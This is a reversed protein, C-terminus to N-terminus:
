LLDRMKEIEKEINAKIIRRAHATDPAATGAIQRIHGWSPWVHAIFIDKFEPYRHIPYGRCVWDPICATEGPELVEDIDGPRLFSM